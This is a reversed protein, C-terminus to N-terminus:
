MPHPRKNDPEHTEFYGFALLAIIVLSWPASADSSLSVDAKHGLSSVRAHRLVSLQETLVPLNWTEDCKASSTLLCQKDIKNLSQRQRIALIIFVAQVNLGFSNRILYGMVILALGPGAVSSQIRSSPCKESGQCKFIQRDAINRGLKYKILLPLYLEFKISTM